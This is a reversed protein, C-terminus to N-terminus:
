RTAPQVINLINVLYLRLYFPGEKYSLFDRFFPQLLYLEQGLSMILDSLPIGCLFFLYLHNPYLPAPSFLIQIQFSVLSLVQIIFLNSAKHHSIIGEGGNTMFIDTFDVNSVLNTLIFNLLTISVGFLLSM